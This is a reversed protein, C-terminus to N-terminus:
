DERRPPLSKATDMGPMGAMSGLASRLNSEADVLFTASAVVADGAVLGSRIEVRDDNAVGTVVQRPELTGAATRLFVMSREGTVLVASRPVTLVRDGVPSALHVTAFMGPKLRQNPNALAIRVRATRTAPDVLPYVYTISGNWREGPYAQIEVSVRQGTRVRALDQEFLQGDVWVRSLDALRYLTEGAMIRQGAVVLKEVVVGRSGAHLTLTRSPQGTREVREIDESRIDWYQLRRRASALMEDANRRAEETGNAVDRALRAALLLEEQATVLMPSYIDFLPQGQRVDQGTFDVYLREVWGDMKPAIATTRTEDWVVQGLSRVSVAFPGSTVEAFTIGTRRAAEADLSVPVSSTGAPAAHNHEKTAPSEPADRTLVIAMALAVLVVAVSFGARLRRRSSTAYGSEFSSRADPTHDTM